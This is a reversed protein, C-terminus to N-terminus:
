RNFALSSIQLEEDTESLARKGGAPRKGAGGKPLCLISILVFIYVYLLNILFSLLKIQRSMIKFKSALLGNKRM